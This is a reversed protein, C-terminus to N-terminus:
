APKTFSKIIVNSKESNASGSYWSLLSKYGVYIVTPSINIFGIGLAQDDNSGWGLQDYTASAVSTFAGGVVYTYKNVVNASSVMFVHTGDFYSSRANTQGGTITSAATITTGSITYQTWTTTGLNVFLDTGDTFVGGFSALAPNGTTLSAPNTLDAADLRTGVMNGANGGTGENLLYLYSGVIAMGGGAGDTSSVTAEHTKYYMLTNTDRAFRAITYEDTYSNYYAIFVVSGDTSSTVFQATNTTNNATAAYGGIVQEAPFSVSSASLTHTGHDYSLGSGITWFGISNDTDDWGWLKNAGPDSLSAGTGGNALKLTGTASSFAALTTPEGSGDGILIAGDVTLPIATFASTGNGHLVGTLTTAGTGGNSVSLTGTVQTNLDIQGAINGLDLASELDTIDINAAPLIGTVQTTLDIQGGINALDLNSELDTIDINAAPLLGTVQTTLDLQGGMLSLDLEGEDIAVNTKTVNDAVDFGHTFNIITRQAVAVGDEQITNYGAGSADITLTENGGPNNVTLTVGTGAVLKTALYGFTTDASTVKIQGDTNGPFNATVKMAKTADDIRGMRVEENVDDTILGIVPVHNQDRQLVEDAM